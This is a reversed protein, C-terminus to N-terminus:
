YARMGRLELAQYLADKCVKPVIWNKYTWNFTTGTFSSCVAKVSNNVTIHCSVAIDGSPLETTQVAGEKEGERIVFIAM